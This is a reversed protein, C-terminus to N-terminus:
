IEVELYGRGCTKHKRAHVAAAVNTMKQHHQSSGRQDWWAAGCKCGNLGYELTLMPADQHRHTRISVHCSGIAATCCSCSVQFCTPPVGHGYSKHDLNLISRGEDPRCRSSRVHGKDAAQVAKPVMLGNLRTPAM